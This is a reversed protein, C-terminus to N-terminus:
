IKRSKLEQRTSDPKEVQELTNRDIDILFFDDDKEIWRTKNQKVTLTLKLQNIVSFIVNDTM